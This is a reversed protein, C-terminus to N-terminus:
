QEMTAKCGDLVPQAEEAERGNIDFVVAFMIPVTLCDAHHFACSVASDSAGAESHSQQRVGPAAAM